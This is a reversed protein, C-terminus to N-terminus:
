TQPITLMLSYLLGFLLHDTRIYFSLFTSIRRSCFLPPPLSLLAQLPHYHTINIIFEPPQLVAVFSSFLILATMTYYNIHAGFPRM